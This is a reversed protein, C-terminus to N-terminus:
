TRKVIWYRDTRVIVRENGRSHGVAVLRHNADDRIAEYEGSAVALNARCDRQGCECLLGVLRGKRGASLALRRIQDNTERAPAESRAKRKPHIAM